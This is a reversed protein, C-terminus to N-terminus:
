KNKEEEKKEEKEEEARCVPCENVSVYCYEWDDCRDSDRRTSYYCEEIPGLELGCEECADIWCM